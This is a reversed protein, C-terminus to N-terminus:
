KIWGNAVYKTESVVIFAKKDYKEILSKLEEIKKADLEIFLMRSNPEDKTRKLAIESVGFNNEKIEKKLGRCNKTTIVQVCIIEEVFRKVLYSGIFSGSAYGLSYSVPILLSNVDTQLAERAVFFWIFVEFFALISAKVRQGKVMILTRYTGISVDLIRAFFIKLCLLFM